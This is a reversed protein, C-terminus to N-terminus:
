DPACYPGSCPPATGASGNIAGVMGPHISCHYNIGAAPVTVTTSTSNAGINGTDFSNDNAVIRHVTGDGNQWAVTLPAGPSVPNPNFSQSGRDGVISVTASPPTPTPTPSPSPSGGYSGGGCGAAALVFGFVGVRFLESRIV